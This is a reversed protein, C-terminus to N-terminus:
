TISEVLRQDLWLRLDAPASNYKEVQVFSAHGTEDLLARLTVALLDSPAVVIQNAGRYRPAEAESAETMAQTVHTGRTVLTHVKCFVAIM